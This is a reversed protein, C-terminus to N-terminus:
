SCPMFSYNCGRVKQYALPFAGVWQSSFIFYLFRAEASFSVGPPVPSNCNCFTRQTCKHANSSVIGSFTQHVLYRFNCSRTLVPFFVYFCFLKKWMLWFANNVTAMFSGGMNHFISQFLFLRSKGCTAFLLTVWVSFKQLQNQM